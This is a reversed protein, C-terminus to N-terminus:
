RGPAGDGDVLVAEVDLEEIGRLGDDRAGVPVDVPAEVGRLGAVAPDWPSGATMRNDGSPVRTAIPSQSVVAGSTM